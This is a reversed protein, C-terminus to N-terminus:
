GRLHNIIGNKKEVWQKVEGIHKGIMWKFIPAAKKVVKNQPNVIIGACAYSLTIRYLKDSGSMDEKTPEIEGRDYNTGSM